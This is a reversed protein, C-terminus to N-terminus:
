FNLSGTGYQDVVVPDGIGKFINPQRRSASRFHTILDIQDIVLEQCLSTPSSEGDVDVACFFNNFVRYEKVMVDWLTRVLDYLVVEYYGAIAPTATTATVRTRDNTTNPRTPDETPDETSDETPQIEPPPTTKLRHALLHNTQEWDGRYGLSVFIWGQLASTDVDSGLIRKGLWWSGEGLEDDDESIGYLLATSSRFVHALDDTALFSIGPVGQLGTQKISTTVIGLMAAEVAVIFVTFDRSTYFRLLEQTLESIAYEIITTSEATTAAELEDDESNTTTMILDTLIPSLPKLLAVTIGRSRGAAQFALSMAVSQEHLSYILGVRSFSLYSCLDLLASAQATRPPSFSVVRSLQLHMEYDTLALPTILPIKFFDLISLLKQFGPNRPILLSLVPTPCQILQLIKQAVRTVETNNNLDLSIYTPSILSSANVAFNADDFALSIIRSLRNVDAFVDSTSPEVLVPLTFSDGCQKPITYLANTQLQPKRPPPSASHTSTPIPQTPDVTTSTTTSSPDSLTQNASFRANLSAALLPIGHTDNQM